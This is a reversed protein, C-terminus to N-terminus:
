DAHSILGFLIFSIFTTCMSAAYLNDAFESGTRCAVYIPVLCLLIALCLGSVIAVVECADLWSSRNPM